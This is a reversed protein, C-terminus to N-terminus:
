AIKIVLFEDPLLSASGDFVRIANEGKAGTKIKKLMWYAGLFGGHGSNDGPTPFSIFKEGINLDKFTLKKNTYPPLAYGRKEAFKQFFNYFRDIEEEVIEIIYGLENGGDFMMINADISRLYPKNRYVGRSFNKSFFEKLFERDWEKPIFVKILMSQQDIRFYKM